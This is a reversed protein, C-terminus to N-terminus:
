DDDGPGDDADDDGNDDGGAGPPSAPPGGPAGAQVACDDLDDDLGDDSGDDDLGDDDLDDGLCALSLTYSGVPRQTDVPFVDIAYTGPQALDGAYLLQQGGAFTFSRQLPAFQQTAPNLYRITSAIPIEVSAARIAYTQGALPTTLRYQDIPRGDPLVADTGDGLSGQVTQGYAIPTPATQGFAAGALVGQAALVVLGSSVAKGVRTRTDFGPNRLKM